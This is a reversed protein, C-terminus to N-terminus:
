RKLVIADEEFKERVERLLQEVEWPEEYAKQVGVRTLGDGRRDLYPEYGAEYIRQVLRDVNEQNGFIGIAVVCEKQGPPTTPSETDPPIPMTEQEENPSAIIPGNTLTDTTLDDRSPKVNLRSSPVEGDETGSVPWRGEFFFLYVALALVVLVVASIIPLFRRFWNDIAAPQREGSWEAGTTSAAVASPSAAPSAADGAVPYFHVTPLGFSDTNFNTSEALFQLHGEYDKYLRGVKPFVVTERKEVAKKVGEVYHEVATKAESYNIQHKEQVYGTLLGDDLVLNPNFELKKSPPHIQGQVQDIEASKYRGVFGGLGPLNVSDHEYLLDSIYAGVDIAM